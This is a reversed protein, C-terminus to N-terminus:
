DGWESTAEEPWGIGILQSPWYYCTTRKIDRPLPESAFNARFARALIIVRLAFFTDGFKQNPVSSNNQLRYLSNINGGISVRM